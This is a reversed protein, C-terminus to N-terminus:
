NRGAFNLLDNAQIWEPTGQKFRAQATKAKETALQKDGLLWAAQATALEARPVDGTQGYAMAMYKYVAPTEGETKQALRLAKLAEHSSTPTGSGLLAQALLIQILGNNPLLKVAQRLPPVAKAPAGGELLAQGLLEWFYPDEPLERTLGEIIPVANKTDGKRFMAISRAYRSPLSNDTRPYHQFVVTAPELFGTLKAQMLQHRLVLEPADLKDFYPSKKAAEELNRIRDFPMPHSLVYPDVNQISAISENALKNFLTLMGKASQGTTTLFKLAAQDATAEMVRQYALINRQAFGQSGMMIGSGAKAANRDGAAAGGVAAAVGVLMGIISTVSAHDLENGLRALHGGAIHGSEHALVGIVENPTKAQMLLGTHIFIRQGGAVFANIRPDNILYVKASGPDIGAAKFIPRTYLRMLGEIEADRILPPGSAKKEKAAEVPAVTMLALVLVLLATFVRRIYFLTFIM